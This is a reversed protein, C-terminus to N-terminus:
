QEKQILTRLFQIEGWLKENENQLSLIHAEYSAREKDSLGNITNLFGSYSCNEFLIKEDFTILKLPDIDFVSSVNEIVEKDIKRNGTEINSYAKQSINLKKAMYDQSFGKLERIKRINEGIKTSTISM